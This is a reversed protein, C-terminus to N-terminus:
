CSKIYECLVKNPSFKSNFRNPTRCSFSQFKAHLQNLFFWCKLGIAGFIEQGGSQFMESWLILFWIHVAKNLKKYKEAKLRKSILDSNHNKFIKFIKTWKGHRYPIKQPTGKELEKLAKYKIKYSKHERKKQLLPRWSQSTEFRLYAIYEIFSIHRM